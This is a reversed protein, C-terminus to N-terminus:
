RWCEIINRLEKIDQKRMRMLIDGIMKKKVALKEPESAIIRCQDLLFRVMMFDSYFEAPKMFQEVETETYDSFYIKLYGDWLMLSQEFDLQIIKKYFDPYSVEDPLGFLEKATNTELQVMYQYTRYICAVDWLPHGTSFDDMDILIPKDDLLKINKAHFDGHVATDRDPVADICTLLYDIDAKELFENSDLIENRLMDNRNKEEYVYRERITRLIGIM